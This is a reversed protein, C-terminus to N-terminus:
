VVCELYEVVQADADTAGTSAGGAAWKLEITNGEDLIIPAYLPTSSSIGTKSSPYEHAVGANASLNIITRLLNTKAAEKWIKITMTRAVDDCNVMRIHLLKWRRNAPVTVDNTKVTNNVLTVSTVAQVLRARPIGLFALIAGFAGM